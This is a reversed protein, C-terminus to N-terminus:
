KTARITAYFTPVHVTCGQTRNLVLTMPLTSKDFIRFVNEQDNKIEIESNFFQFYQSSFSEKYM